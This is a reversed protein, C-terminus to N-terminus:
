KKAGGAFLQLCRLQSVSALCELEECSSDRYPNFFLRRIHDQEHVCICYDVCPDGQPRYWAQGTSEDVGGRARARLEEQSACKKGGGCFGQKNSSVNTSAAKLKGPDCDRCAPKPLTVSPNSITAGCDKADAPKPIRGDPDILNLPSSSAYLYHTLSRFLGLPDPRTYRGVEGDYWRNLNYSLDFNASYGYWNADQWQGPFRLYIGDAQAGAYDKGFPEFGGEWVNTGAGNAALIPTGLHDTTLFLLTSSPVGSNVIKELSAVPRGAFHFVYYDSTLTGGSRVDRRHYFLGDSSYTPAATDGTKTSQRLFDRGDYLFTLDTGIQRLRQVNNYALTTGGIGTVDGIADYTYSRSGGGGLAISSLKPTNNGGGNLTYTYTDAGETLRNGIKDYTWARTGWPGDGTTLFYHYDQYAYTRDNAANLNDDIATVNGMFDATYGWDLLGPVVIGQPFYRGDFARSETTGNDLTLEALPGFPKYSATNVLTQAPNAGDQYELASPRDVFDYTYTATV